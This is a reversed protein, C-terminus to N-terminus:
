SSAIDVSCGLFLHRGFFLFQCISYRNWKKRLVSGKEKLKFFNINNVSEIGLICM